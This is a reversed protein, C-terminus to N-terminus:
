QHRKRNDQAAKVAAKEQKRSEKMLHKQHKQYKEAEKRQHNYDWKANSQGFGSTSLCLFLALLLLYVRTSKV